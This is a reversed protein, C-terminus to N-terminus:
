AGKRTLICNAQYYETVLISDDKISEAAEVVPAVSLCMMICGMLAVVNKKLRKM